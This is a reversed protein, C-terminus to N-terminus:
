LGFGGARASGRRDGGAAFILLGFGSPGASGPIWLGFGSGPRDATVPRSFGRDLDRGPGIRRRRGLFDM